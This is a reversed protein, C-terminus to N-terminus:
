DNVEKNYNNLQQNIEVSCEMVDSPNTIYKGLIDFILQKNKVSLNLDKYLNDIGDSTEFEIRKKFKEINVDNLETPELHMKLFEIRAELKENIIQLSDKILTNALIIDRQESLEQYVSDGDRLLNFREMSSLPIERISNRLQQEYKEVLVFESDNKTEGITILYRTYELLIKRKNAM